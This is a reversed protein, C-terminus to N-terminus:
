GVGAPIARSQGRGGTEYMTSGHAPPDVELPVSFQAPEDGASEEVDQEPVDQQIDGAQAAEAPRGQLAPLPDGPAVTGEGDLHAAHEDLEALEQADADVEEWLLDELLQAAQLVLNRGLRELLDDV